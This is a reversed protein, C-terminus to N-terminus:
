QVARLQGAPHRDVAGLAEGLAAHLRRAADTRLYVPISDLHAIVGFGSPEATMEDGALVTLSELKSGYGAGVRVRDYQIRM